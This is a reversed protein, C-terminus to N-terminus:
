GSLEEGATSFQPTPSSNASQADTAAANNGESKSRRQRLADPTQRFREERQTGQRDPRGPRSRNLSTLDATKKQEVLWVVHYQQLRAEEQQTRVRLMSGNKRVPKSLTRDNNNDSEQNNNKTEFPPKTIIRQSSNRHTKVVHSVNNSVFVDSNIASGGLKKQNLGGLGDASKM